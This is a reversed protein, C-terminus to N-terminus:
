LLQVSKKKISHTKIGSAPVEETSTEGTFLVSNRSKPNALNTWQSHMAGKSLTWNLAQKLTVSWHVPHVLRLNCIFWNLKHFLRNFTLVEPLNRIIQSSDISYLELFLSWLLSGTPSPFLLTKVPTHEYIEGSVTVSSPFKQAENIVDEPKTDSKTLWETSISNRRIEIGRWQILQM